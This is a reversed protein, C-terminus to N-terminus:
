MDNRGWAWLVGNEDLLLIGAGCADMTAIRIDGTDIRVPVTQHDPTGPNLIRYENDGWGWLTGEKDLALSFKGGAAIQVIDHLPLKYPEMVSVHKESGVQGRNNRGWAFVEGQVTLALVHGFGAKIDAIEENLNIRVHTKLYYDKVTMPLYANNGVGFVTSDDMWLFSYDSAPVIDKLRLLDIDSNKTTFGKVRFSQQVSGRGLQGFQNDGWVSIQGQNDRAYVFSGGVALIIPVGSDGQWTVASASGYLLFLVLLLCGAKRM